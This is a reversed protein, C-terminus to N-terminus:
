ESWPPGKIETYAAVMANDIKVMIKKAVRVLAHRTILLGGSRNIKL